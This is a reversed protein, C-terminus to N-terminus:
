LVPPSFGDYFEMVKVTSFLGNPSLLHPLVQLQDSVQPNKLGPSSLASLLSCHVTVLVLVLILILILVLLQLLVLVLVFLM